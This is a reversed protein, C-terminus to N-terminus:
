PTSRGEWARAASFPSLAVGPRQSHTHHTPSGSSLSGPHPIHLGRGGKGGGKGACVHVCHTKLDSVCSSSERTFSQGWAGSNRRGFM